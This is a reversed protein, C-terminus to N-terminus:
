SIELPRGHLEKAEKEYDATRDGIAECADIAEEGTASQMGEAFYAHLLDVLQKLLQFIEYVKINIVKRCLNAM